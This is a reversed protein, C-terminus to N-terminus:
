AFHFASDDLKYFIFGEAVAGVLERSDMEIVIHGM